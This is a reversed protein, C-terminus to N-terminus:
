LYLPPKLNLSLLQNPLLSIFLRLYYSDLSNTDLNCYTQKILLYILALIKGVVKVPAFILNKCFVNKVM